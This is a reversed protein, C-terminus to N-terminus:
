WYIKQLAVPCEESDLCEEIYPCDSTQFNALPTTGLTAYQVYTANITTESELYPCYGTVLEKKQM